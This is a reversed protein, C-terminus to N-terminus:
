RKGLHLGRTVYIIGIASGEPYAEIFPKLNRINM